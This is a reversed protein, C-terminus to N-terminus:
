ILDYKHSISNSTEAVVCKSATRSDLKTADQLIPIDSVSIAGVALKDIIVDM